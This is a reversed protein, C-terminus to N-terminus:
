SSPPAGSRPQLTARRRRMRVARSLNFEGRGDKCAVGLQPFRRSDANEAAIVIDSLVPIETHVLAPGNLAAAIPGEIDFLNM